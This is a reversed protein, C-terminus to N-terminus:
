RKKVTIKVDDALLEIIADSSASKVDIEKQGICVKISLGRGLLDLRGILIDLFTRLRSFLLEYNATALSIGWVLVRVDDITPLNRNLVVTGEIGPLIDSLQSSEAAEKVSNRVYNVVTKPTNPKMIPVCFQLKISNKM